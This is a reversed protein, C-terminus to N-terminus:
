RYSGREGCDLILGERLLFSMIRFLGVLRRASLNRFANQLGDRDRIELSFLIKIQNYMRNQRRKM